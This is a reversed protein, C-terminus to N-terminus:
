NQKSIWDEVSENIAFKYKLGKRNCIAKLTDYLVANLQIGVDNRKLKDDIM